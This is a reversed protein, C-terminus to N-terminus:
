RRHPDLRATGRARCRLERARLDDLGHGDALLLRHLVDDVPAQPADPSRSPDGPRRAQRSRDALGRQSLAGGLAGDGVVCPAGGRGGARVRARRQRAADRVRTAASAASSRGDGAAVLASHVAPIRARKEYYLEIAHDTLQWPERTRAPVGDRALSYLYRESVGASVAMDRVYAADFSGNAKATRLTQTLQGREGRTLKM